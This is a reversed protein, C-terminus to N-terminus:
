RGIGAVLAGILTALVLAYFFQGKPSDPRMPMAAERGRSAAASALHPELLTGAPTVESPGCAFTNGAAYPDSGAEVAQILRIDDALLQRWPCLGYRDATM